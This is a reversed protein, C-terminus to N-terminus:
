ACSRRAGGENGAWSLRGVRLPSCAAGGPLGPLGSTRPASPSPISVASSPPAQPQPAAAHAVSARVSLSRRAAALPGPSSSADAVAGAEPAACRAGAPETAPEGLAASTSARPLGGAPEPEEGGGGGGGDDLCSRWAEVFARRTDTGPPEPCHRGSPTGECGGGGAAWPRGAAGPGQPTGEDVQVAVSDASDCRPACFPTPTSTRVAADAADRLGGQRARRDKASETEEPAAPYRHALPEVQQQGQGQQQQDEEEQQQQQEEEEGEEEEDGEAEDFPPSLALAQPAAQQGAAADAQPGCLAGSASGPAGDGGGAELADLRQVWEAAFGKLRASVEAVQQQLLAGRQALAGGCGGESPDFDECPLPRAPTAFGVGAEQDRAAAAAMDGREGCGAAPATDDAGPRPGASAPMRPKTSYVSWASPSAWPAGGGGGGGLSASASARLTADREAAFYLALSDGMEQAAQPAPRM